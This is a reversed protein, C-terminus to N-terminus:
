GFAADLSGFLGHIALSWPLRVLQRLWHPDGYADSAFASSAFTVSWSEVAVAAGMSSLM